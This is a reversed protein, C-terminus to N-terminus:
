AGSRSCSLWGSEGNGDPRSVQHGKGRYTMKNMPMGEAIVRWQSLHVSPSVHLRSLDTVTGPTDRLSEGFGPGRTQAESVVATPAAPLEGASEKKEKRRLLQGWVQSKGGVEM